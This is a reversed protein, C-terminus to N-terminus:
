FLQFSPCINETEWMVYKYLRCIYVKYLFIRTSKKTKIYVAWISSHNKILCYGDMSTEYNYHVLVQVNHNNKEESHKLELSESTNTPGDFCSGIEDSGYTMDRRSFWFCNIIPLRYKLGSFVFGSCITLLPVITIVFLGKVKIM